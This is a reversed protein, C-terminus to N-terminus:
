PHLRNPVRREGGSYTRIEDSEKYPDLNQLLCRTGFYIVRFDRMSVPSIREMAIGTLLFLVSGLILLFVGDLHARTTILRKRDEKKTEIPRPLLHDSGLDVPQRDVAM